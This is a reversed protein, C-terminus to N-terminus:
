TQAKVTIRITEPFTQADDTTITNVVDFVGGIMLSTFGGVPIRTLDGDIEDSGASLEAPVEWSSSAIATGTRALIASWDLELNPVTGPSVSTNKM